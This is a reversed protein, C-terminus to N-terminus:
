FLFFDIYGIRLVSNQCGIMILNRLVRTLLSHNLFKKEKKEKKRKKRKEERMNSEFFFLVSVGAQDGANQKEGAASDKM